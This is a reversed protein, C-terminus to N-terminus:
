VCRVICFDSGNSPAGEADFTVSCNHETDANLGFISIINSSSSMHILVFFRRM